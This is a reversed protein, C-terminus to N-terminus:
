HAGELCARAVARDDFPLTVGGITQGSEHGKGAILLVDGPRLEDIAMAIAHAREGGDRLTPAAAMVAARIAAPDESRPNDDTVIAVDALRAAIAGMLPRKGPDRDGGCGFVVLLRGQAHARAAVLAKDLADPTHAYDVYVAAGGQTTGVHEMRGPAGTIAGLREAADALRGGTALWLGAAALLNMAQFGGILRSDVEIEGGDLALLLHQGTPGPRQGLLRLRRADRGYDVVAIGREACLAALEAFEPVDANLVATGGVVLVEGFLRAKAARYADMTGHHDLHDRTLNTFAAAHIVLGDVRQQELGHSSAEIVLHDVGEAALRGALRHLTVPDPTTLKGPLDGTSSQVGLTGISAAAHGDQQWLQRTFSAVSTKGNTGTVAAVVAPQPAFFRAAIRALLARPDADALVPVPWERCALATGGLLAVAGARIAQDAFAAGDSRSGPLAAFLDGPRVERSDLALGSVEVDATPRTGPDALTSLRM